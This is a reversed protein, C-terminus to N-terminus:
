NDNSCQLSEDRETRQKKTKTHPPQQDCSSNMFATPTLDFLYPLYCFRGFKFHLYDYSYCHKRTKQISSFLRANCDPQFMIFIFKFPQKLLHTQHTLVWEKYSPLFANCLYSFPRLLCCICYLFTILICQTSWTLKM